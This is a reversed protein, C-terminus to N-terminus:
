HELGEVVGADGVLLPLHHPLPCFGYFSMLSSSLSHGIM